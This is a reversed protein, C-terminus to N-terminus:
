DNEDPDPKSHKMEIAIWTLSAIVCYAVIMYWKTLFSWDISLLFLYYKTFTTM